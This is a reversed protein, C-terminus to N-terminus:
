KVTLSVPFTRSSSLITSDTAPVDKFNITVGYFPFMCKLRFLGINCKSISGATYEAIVFTSPIYLKSNL